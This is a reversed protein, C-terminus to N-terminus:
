PENKAGSDPDTDGDTDPDFEERVRLEGLIARITRVDGRGLFATGAGHAM